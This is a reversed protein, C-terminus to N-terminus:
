SLTNAMSLLYTRLNIKKHTLGLKKRIRDKYVEISRTSCNLLAAIDKASKGERVLNAVEIERPTLDMYTVELNRLFPSIINKLNATIIDVYGSQFATLPTLNLKEVYPLVLRKVNNLVKKEMDLQDKERQKLLVKLAINTEHLRHSEAELLQEKEALNEVVKALEATRDKVRVALKDHMEKLADQTQKLSTIDRVSSRHGLSCGNEDHFPRWSVGVWKKTGDKSVIRCQVDSGSTGQIASIFLRRMRERDDQDFIPIPFDSMAMCEEVSYGTFDYVMPNIWLLNGDPGVWNEWDPSYDAIARSRKESARLAEEARKRDTIDTMVALLYKEKGLTMMVANLLGYILNGNKNKIQLELNESRGKKKLKNLFISRQEEKILGLETLTKGITESRKFGMLKLFAESVEVFRGEEITSLIMPIACKLFSKMFKERSEKLYRSAEQLNNSDIGNLSGKPINYHESIFQGLEHLESILQSKTKVEERM